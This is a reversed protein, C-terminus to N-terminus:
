QILSRFDCIQQLFYNRFHFHKETEKYLVELVEDIALIGRAYKRATKDLTDRIHTYTYDLGDLLENICSIILGLEIDTAYPKIKDYYKLFVEDASMKLMQEMSTDKAYQMLEEEVIREITQYLEEEEKLSKIIKTDM